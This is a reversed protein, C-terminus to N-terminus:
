HSWRHLTLAAKFIDWDRPDNLLHLTYRDPELHLCYRRTTRQGTTDYLARQYASTQPGVTKPIAAGTKIDLLRNSKGWRLLKDITGAYGLKKSYVALESELVVAGTEELFGEWVALHAEIAPSLLHRQLNEMDYLHIAQHVHTGFEATARLTEADVFELGSYPDLVRTVGPVPNGKFKYGHSGQNLTLGEM